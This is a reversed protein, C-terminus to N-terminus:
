MPKLRLQPTKKRQEAAHGSISRATDPEAPKSLSSSTETANM